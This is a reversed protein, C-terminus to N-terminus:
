RGEEARCRELLARLRRLDDEPVGPGVPTEWRVSRLSAFVARRVEADREGGVLREAADLYATREEDPDLSRFAAIRAAASPDECAGRVKLSVAEPAHAGALAHFAAARIEPLSDAAFRCVAQLMAPDAGGDLRCRALAFRTRPGSVGALLVERTVRSLEEDDAFSADALLTELFAARAADEEKLWLRVLRGRKEPDAGLDLLYVTTEADREVEDEVSRLGDVELVLSDPDAHPTSAESGHPAIARAPGTAPPPAAHPAERRRPQDTPLGRVASFSIAFVAVAATAQALRRALPRGSTM